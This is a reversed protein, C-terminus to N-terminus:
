YVVAPPVRTNFKVPGAIVGAFVAAVAGYTLRHKDSSREGQGPAVHKGHSNFLNFGRTYNIIRVGPCSDGM